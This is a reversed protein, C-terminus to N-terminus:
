NINSYIYKKKQSVSLEIIRNPKMLEVSLDLLFLKTFVEWISKDILQFKLAIVVGFM